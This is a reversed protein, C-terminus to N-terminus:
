DVKHQPESAAPWPEGVDEMLCDLRAVLLRLSGGGSFEVQAIGDAFALSLVSYIHNPRSRDMQRSQVGTVGSFSLLSHTRTQENKEEWRYRNVALM